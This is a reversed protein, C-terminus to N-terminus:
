RARAPAPPYQTPSVQGLEAREPGGNVAQAGLSRTRGAARLGPRAPHTVPPGSIEPSTRPSSGPRRRLLARGHNDRLPPTARRLLQPPRTRRRQWPPNCHLLIPRERREQHTFNPLPARLPRHRSTIIRPRTPTPPRLLIHHPAPVPRPQFTGKQLRLRNRNDDIRTVL